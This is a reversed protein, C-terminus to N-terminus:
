VIGGDMQVYGDGCSPCIEPDDVDDIVYRAGCYTCASNGYKDPHETTKMSPMM